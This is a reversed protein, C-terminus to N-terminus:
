RRQRLPSFYSRALLTVGVRVKDTVVKPPALSTDKHIFLGKTAGHMA